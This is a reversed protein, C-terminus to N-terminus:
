RAGQEGAANELLARFIQISSTARCSIPSSRKRTRSTSTSPAASGAEAPLRPSRRGPHAAARDPDPQDGVQIRFLVAHLRRVARTSCPSSRRRRHRRRERFGISSSRASTSSARHDHPAYTAACSTTARRASASSRSRRAKAGAARLAHDRALRAIPSNFRAACAASPPASSSCISTTGARDRGDAGARRRRGGIASPSNALVAGHARSYPRAAEAAEQARRLKAAAVMQM